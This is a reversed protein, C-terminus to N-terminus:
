HVGNVVQGHELGEKLRQQTREAAADYVYKVPPCRWRTEISDELDSDGPDDGPYTQDKELDDGNDSTTPEQAAEVVKRKGLAKASPGEPYGGGDDYNRPTPSYDRQLYLSNVDEHLHHDYGNTATYPELTPSPTRSQTSLQGPSRPGHPAAPPPALTHAPEFDNDASSIHHPRPQALASRHPSDSSPPSPSPSRSTSGGVFEDVSNEQELERRNIRTEKRSRSEAKREMAVRELDEYQKLAEVLEANAQLLAALLKEEVTLEIPLDDGDHHPKNSETSFTRKRAQREQDKALRSREAGASAWEIQAFILEQSSQCKGYFEPIVSGKKKLDQPKCVMLAEALLAANGQGIKCEELLRRMDEEPPIIRNRVPSRRKRPPNPPPTPPIADAPLPSAERYQSLRGSAPPHFMADDTDFPIGEDPKDYPKVRRWLGRFGDRDGRGDRRSGSAYAAAAVVELLRERVVPSTRSSSLLDELTELFKRSMSQSIFVDTSNRLMIAWLRAASLQAPPEGYKFERRLARVAEKANAENASARDCVELVLGWDESATATLYGIMRTLEAQPDEDRRSDRGRDGRGDREREKEKEREREREKEKEKDKDKDRNKWFPRKEKKEVHDRNFDRHGHDSQTYREVSVYHEESNSRSNYNNIDARPPDLSRLIGLAVPASPPSPGKKLTRGQPAHDRQQGTRSSIMSTTTMAPSPSRVPPHMPNSSPPPSAGPPLSNFSSSRSVSMGPPLPNPLHGQESYPTLADWREEDGQTKFISQPPPPLPQQNQHTYVAHKHHIPTSVPNDEPSGPATFDRSTKTAKSKNHGFFKKM